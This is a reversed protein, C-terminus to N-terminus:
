RESGLPGTLGGTELPLALQRDRSREAHFHEAEQFTRARYIGERGSQGSLAAFGLECLETVRPRVTLLDMQLHAALQRTTCPGYKDLAEWVLHRLGAVRQCVDRFSARKIDMPTM